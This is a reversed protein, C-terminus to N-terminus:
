LTNINAIDIVFSYLIKSGFVFLILLLAFMMILYHLDCQYNLSFFKFNWVPIELFLNVFIYLILNM